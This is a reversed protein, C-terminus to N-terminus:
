MENRDWKIWASSTINHSALLVQWEDGGLDDIEHKGLPDPLLNCDYALFYPLYDDPFNWEPM